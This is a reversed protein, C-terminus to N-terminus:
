HLRRHQERQQQEHCSAAPRARCRQQDVDSPASPARRLGGELEDRPGLRPRAAEIRGGPHWARQAQTAPPARPHPLGDLGRALLLALAFLAVDVAGVQTGRDLKVRASDWRPQQQLVLELVLGELPDQASAAGLRQRGHLRQLGDLLGPLPQLGRGVLRLAHQRAGELAVLLVCFHLVAVVFPFLLRFVFDPAPARASDRLPLARAAHRRGHTV